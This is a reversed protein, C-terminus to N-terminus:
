EDFTKNLNIVEWTWGKEAKYTKRSLWRIVLGGALMGIGFNIQGPTLLPNDGNTTRNFFAIGSFLIGGGAIATGGLRLLHNYTRMAKIEKLPYSTTGVTISKENIATIKGEVWDGGEETQIKISNYLALRKYPVEGKKKLYLYQQSFAVTSFGLFILAILALRANLKHIPNM